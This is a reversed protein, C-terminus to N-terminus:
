KGPTGRTASWFDYAVLFLTVAVVAGLDIRPVFWVLIGLFIALVVFAALAMIKDTM